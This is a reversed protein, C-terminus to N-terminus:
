YSQIVKKLKAIKKLRLDLFQEMIMLYLKQNGLVDFPHTNEVCIKGVTAKRFHIYYECKNNEVENLISFFSDIGFGKKTKIFKENHCFSTIGFGDPNESIIYLIEEKSLISLLNRKTKNEIILCM